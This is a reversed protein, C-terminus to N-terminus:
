WRRAVTLDPAGGGGGGGEGGDGEEVEPTAVPAQPRVTGFLWAGPGDANVARVRVRYKTGNTLGELKQLLKDGDVPGEWEESPVWGDASSPSDGTQVPADAAVTTSSTYHVQYDTITSGGNDSPARWELLAVGDGVATGLRRESRGDGLPVVVGMPATPGDQITLTARGGTAPAVYDDLVDTVLRLVITENREQETDDTIAVSLNKTRTTDSPGFTVLKTAILFDGPNQADTGETATGGGQGTVVEVAVTTSRLPLYPVTVPVSVTGASESFTVAYDPVTVSPRVEGFVM